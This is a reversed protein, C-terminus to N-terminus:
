VRNIFERQTIKDGWPIPKLQELATAIHKAYAEVCKLGKERNARFPNGMIGKPAFESHEMAFSFYEYGDIKVVPLGDNKQFSKPLWEPSHAKCIEARDMRVLSEDYAMVQATELEGAHWGPTEEPPGDMFEEIVGLYREAWPRVMGVMAGTEYRIKRMLPDTVKMNSAHGCVFILKNFGHHIVSRAIDYLVANLTEARLTITGIGANPQRIHHPSYGYMLCDTYPVNAMEAARQTIAICQYTDTGLPLHAGHMECSAFPIMIVDSEKLFEQIDPYAMEAINYRKKIESM